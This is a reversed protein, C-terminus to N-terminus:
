NMLWKYFGAFERRWNKENHEGNPDVSTTVRYNDNKKTLIGAMKKVDSV